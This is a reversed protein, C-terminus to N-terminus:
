GTKVVSIDFNTTQTTRNIPIQMYFVRLLYQFLKLANRGLSPAGLSGFTQCGIASSKIMLPNWCVVAAQVFVSGSINLSWGAYVNM